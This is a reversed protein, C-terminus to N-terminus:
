PHSRPQRVQFDAIRGGQRPTYLNHGVFFFEQVPTPPPNSDQTSAFALFLVSSTLLMPKYTDSCPVQWRLLMWCNDTTAAHNSLSV